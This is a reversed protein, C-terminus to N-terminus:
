RLLQECHRSRLRRGKFKRQVVTCILTCRALRRGKAGEEVSIGNELRKRMAQNDTIGASLNTAVVGPELSSSVVTQVGEDQMRQALYWSYLM